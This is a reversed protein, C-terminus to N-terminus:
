VTAGPTARRYADPTLGTATRFDRTLHSQDAYGLDAAVAALDDHPRTALALAVEQLRIRRSLWKPGHGLTEMCARQITRESRGLREALPRGTRHHVRERLADLVDNALLASPSPPREDLAQMVMLDAFCAREAPDAGAAIALMSTHLRADLDPTVPDTADAVRTPTLDSLVALGAPRLRIAFVHGSGHLTRRWARGHVGTVMLPGPVDGEEVTATVAPLDIIPQDLREDEGLAWSVHWYHDVVASVTSDPRIWGAAYKALRDPYLVGTREGAAIPREGAGPVSM